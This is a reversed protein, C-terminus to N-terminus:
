LLYGLFEVVFILGLFYIGGDGMLLAIATSLGTIIGIGVSIKFPEPGECGYLEYFIRAGLFGLAASVVVGVPLFSQAGILMGLGTAIGIFRYGVIYSTRFIVLLLVIALAILM